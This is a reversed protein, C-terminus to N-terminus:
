KKRYGAREVIRAALGEIMGAEAATLGSRGILGALQHRIKSRLPNEPREPYGLSELAEELRDLADERAARSLLPEAPPSPPLRHRTLEYAALLVAQALNLSPCEPATPIAVAGDLLRVEETTLGADERGFVLAVGGRDAQAALEPAAEALPRPRSRVRGARRTFAVAATCDAIAAALTPFPRAAELLDRAGVAWTFAEDTRYPVPDVLRLDDLGRNRMARAVAGINAPGQPAVLVIAISSQM